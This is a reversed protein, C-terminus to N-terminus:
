MQITLKLDALINRFHQPTPQECLAKFDCALAKRPCSKQRYYQAYSALLHAHASHVAYPDITKIKNEYRKIIQEIAKLQKMQNSVVIKKCVSATLPKKICGIATHLAFKLWLDWDSVLNINHDFGDLALYLDRRVLVTSTAIINESFITAAGQPIVFADQTQQLAQQKFYDSCTFRDHTVESKENMLECNTFSIGVQPNDEMFAIQQQLKNQYWFKDADLFAIYTGSALRAAHNRATSSGESDLKLAIINNHKRCLQCIWEWSKDTSGDDVIVIEIKSKNKSIDQQWVSEIARPLTSLCDKSPIIVSVIPKM